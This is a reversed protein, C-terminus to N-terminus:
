SATDESLRLRNVKLRIIPVEREGTGSSGVVDMVAAAIVLVGIGVGAPGSEPDDFDSQVGGNFKEDPSTEALEGTEIDVVLLDIDVRGDFLSPFSAGPVGIEDFGAVASLEGFGFVSAFIKALTFFPVTIAEAPM